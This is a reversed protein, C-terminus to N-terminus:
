RPSRTAPICAKSGSGGRKPRVLVPLPQHDARDPRRHSLRQRRQRGARQHLVGEAGAHAQFARHPVPDGEARRFLSVVLRVLRSLASDAQGSRRHQGSQHQGPRRDRRRLSLVRRHPRARRLRVTRARRRDLVHAEPQRAAVRLAPRQSTAARACRAAATAPIPSANGVAVHRVDGILDAVMAALLEEDRFARLGRQREHVYKDLYKAFGEDTAALTVYEKLHEADWAYYEPLPLPWRWAGGGRGSEVYFGPLTGAALTPDELLNGDHMKEVTVITREAAHAMTVLERQRGIWVNGDRDAMPAHFLAVDPKIAPLLVIPDDNGFPNDIVKWDPRNNLVDTGILGRLPMFPVGKEAAQFGAHLAPCTADKMRISGKLIAATFRPAAGFEGMSVASTELTEVCGAGILLDAQLSSTPLAILTLRKIGRRILARTAAMAVGSSERPVALVCGDTIPALADDLSRAIAPM